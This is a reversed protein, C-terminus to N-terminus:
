NKNNKIFISIIISIVMLLIILASTKLNFLHGIMTGIIACIIGFISAVIFQSKISKAWIISFASPGIIIGVALLTGVAKFAAVGILALIAYFIQRAIVTSSLGISYEKDITDLLLPKFIISIAIVSVASIVLTFTLTTNSITSINGFLLDDLHVDGHGLDAILLGTALAGLYFIAFNTDEGIRAIKPMKAALLFLIVGTITAGILIAWDSNHGIIAGLAAGPLITHGMADTVLSMKRNILFFGIPTAGIILAIITIIAYTLQQDYIAMDVEWLPM